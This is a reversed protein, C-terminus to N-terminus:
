KPVGGVCPRKVGSLVRVLTSKGAGNHGM